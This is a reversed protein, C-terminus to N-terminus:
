YIKKTKLRRECFVGRSLSYIGVCFSLLRILRISLVFNSLSINVRFNNMKM